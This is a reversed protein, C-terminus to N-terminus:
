PGIQPSIRSFDVGDRYTVTGRIEPSSVEALKCLRVKVTTHHSVCVFIDAKNTFFNMIKLIVVSFWSKNTHLFIKRPKNSGQQQLYKNIHVLKTKKKDKAYGHKLHLVNTQNCFYTAAFWNAM